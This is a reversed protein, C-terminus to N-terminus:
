FRTFGIRTLTSADHAAVGAETLTWVIGGAVVTRLPAARTVLEQSVDRDTRLRTPGDSIPRLLTSTLKDGTLRVALVGADFETWNTDAPKSLSPTAEGWRGYTTLALGDGVTFAHHDGEIDSWAGLVGTQSLVRPKTPDSVDFLLVQVGTTAGKEDGSRGVGLLRGEGVPQLFSSYGLVKLEGIVRPEAPDRLDLAYLPDTQRYTIVYGIDGLFRVGRISEDRGFGDVSGVTVLRDGDRRLVTVRNDDRPKTTKASPRPSAPSAPAAATGGAPGDSSVADDGSEPAPAPEAVGGDGELPMPLTRVGGAASISSAVRLVGDHEDMAWQSLLTGPVEGSALYRTGGAGAGPETSFAHIQTTAAQPRPMAIRDKSAATPFDQWTTSTVYTTTATAYVQSGSALLGAADWQALGGAALDATVVSVTDLGSFTSPAALASCDLLRTSRPSGTVSGDAGFERMTASPVWTDLDAERVLARNAATAREKAAESDGSPYVWPLTAAGRTLVIRVTTGVGRAQVVGGDVDLMRLAKPAAPDSLDVEILRSVWDQKPAPLRLLSGSAPGRPAEWGKGTEGIVVARDGAVLVRGNNLGELRLTSLVRAKRGVGDLSTVRLVQETGPFRGDKLPAPNTVSVMLGKSSVAMVDAEDVGDVQTVPKASVSAGADAAGSATAMRGEPMALPYFMHGGLGYPGVMEEARKRIHGLLADCTSFTSVAAVRETRPSSPSSPSASGDDGRVAAVVGLAALVTVASAGALAPVASRRM